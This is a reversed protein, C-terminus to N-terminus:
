VFFVFLVNINSTTLYTSGIRPSPWVCGSGRRKGTARAQSPSIAFTREAALSTLRISRTDTLATAPRLGKAVIRASLCKTVASGNPTALFQFLRTMFLLHNFGMERERKANYKHAEGAGPLM